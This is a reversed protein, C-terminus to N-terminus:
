DESLRLTQSISPRSVIQAMLLLAVLCVVVLGGLLLSLQLYPITAQVPPVDYPNSGASAGTLDLLSVVPAVFIILLAGLGIGLLFALIYVLGQEWLLVAAVQRPAMGLARVIAFNTLRNSANLWSSLLTGVLALLLAAGIGIGLVGLIDLHTTDQQNSSALMRRDDLGSLTNRIHLPQPNDRGAADDRTRLWVFNPSLTTGSDKAYVTAYSQYDVLLGIGSDPPDPTDYIGPIYNVEGLAIFHMQLTGSDNVGLAFHAGPSLNLAHWLAADAFAYVIDHTSADSRHAVLQATLNSLAQSSNQTSWLATHAYTDADVAMTRIPRDNVEISNYYGLTASQVGSLQGYQTKLQSFTKSADSASLPGSFDAGV